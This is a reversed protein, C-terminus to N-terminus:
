SLTKASIVAALVAATGVLGRCLLGEFGPETPQERNLFWQQVVQVRYPVEDLPPVLHDAQLLPAIVPDTRQAVQSFQEGVAVFSSPRRNTRAERCPLREQRASDGPNPVAAFV